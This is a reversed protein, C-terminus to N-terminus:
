CLKQARLPMAVPEHWLRQNMSSGSCPEKMGRGSTNQGGIVLIAPKGLYPIKFAHTINPVDVCVCPSKPMRM